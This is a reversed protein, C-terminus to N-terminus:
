LFGDINESFFGWIGLVASVVVKIFIDISNLDILFVLLFVLGVLKGASLTKSLKNSGRASPVAYQFAAYALFIFIIGVAIVRTIDQLTENNGLELQLLNVDDITPAAAILAYRM